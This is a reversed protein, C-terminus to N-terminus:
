YYYYDDDSDDDSSSEHHGLANQHQWLAKPTFFSRDCNNMPCSYTDRDDYEDIDSDDVHHGKADQHQELCRMSTFVRQCYHVPCQYEEDRDHGTDSLHQYLAKLSSFERYCRNCDYRPPPPPPPPPPTPTRTRIGVSEGGTQTTFKQNWIHPPIDHLDLVKVRVEGICGAAELKRCLYLRRNNMSWWRGDMWTVQMVPFDDLSKYGYKIERYTEHIDDDNSFCGAITDWIGNCHDKFAKIITIQPMSRDIHLKASRLVDLPIGM